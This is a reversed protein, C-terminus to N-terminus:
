ERDSPDNRDEEMYRARNFRDNLNLVNDLTEQPMAGDKDKPFPSKRRQWFGILALAGIIELFGFFLKGLFGLVM